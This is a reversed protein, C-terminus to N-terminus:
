REIVDNFWGLLKEKKGWGSIEIAWQYLRSEFRTHFSCISLSISRHNWEFWELNLKYIGLRFLHFSWTWFYETGGQDAAFPKWMISQLHSFAGKGKLLALCHTPTSSRKLPWDSKRKKGVMKNLRNSCNFIKEFKGAGCYGCAKACYIKMYESNKDCEGAKSRCSIFPNLHKLPRNAPYM